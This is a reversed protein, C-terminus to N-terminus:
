RRKSGPPLGRVLSVILLLLPIGLQIPLGILPFGRDLFNIVSFVNPYLMISMAVVPISTVPILTIYNKLRLLQALGLVSVYYLLTIKSFAGIVIIVTFLSDLREIFQALSIMRIVSFYPFLVDSRTAGLVATAMPEVQLGGFGMLVIAWVVASRAKTPESLSPLIMLVVFVEGAFTLPSVSARLVPGVGRELVPLLNRFDAEKAVMIMAITISAYVLPFFLETVRALGTLGKYVGFAGILLLGLQLVILPTEPLINTELFEGVQRLASANLFVVWSVMLLAVAKGLAKGFVTESIEVFTKGPFRLALSGVLWAIPLGGIMYVIPVMWADKVTYRSITVPLFIVGTSLVMWVLLLTLQRNSIKGEKVM